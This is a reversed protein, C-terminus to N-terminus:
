FKRGKLELRMLSQSAEKRPRTAKKLPKKPFVTM